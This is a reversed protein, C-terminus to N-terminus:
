LIDKLYEGKQLVIHNCYIQKKLEDIWKNWNIMITGVFDYPSDRKIYRDLYEGRLENQPYVLNIEIDLKNLEKLVTPETAIFLYKTKGFMNLIDQVYNQPFDKSHYEWSETEKYIDPFNDCLYSKGTGCFAAYLLTNNNENKM